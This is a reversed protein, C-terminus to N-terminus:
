KSSSTSALRLGTGSDMYAPKYSERYACRCYTAIGGWSGGRSVRYSGSAPGTPDTSPSSSYYSSSYWDQCWEYVNGSMDYIGLENPAYSKANRHGSPYNTCCGVEGISNSGSYTYGQSKNGGRAAFEWEAETPLRFTLGTLSNLKTIFSQCDNWSVCEVPYNGSWQNSSPNSGMVAQWLEQTVETEGIYYDKTLTVSHVPQEDFYETSGMRFTGKEVRIMNFSVGSVTCTLKASVKWGKPIYNQSPMSLWLSNGSRQEDLTVTREYGTYAGDESVYILGDENFRGYVYSTFYRGAEATSSVTLSTMMDEYTFSDDSLTYSSARKMGSFTVQQAPVGALRLRTYAPKMHLGVMFAGNEYSFQATSDTYVISNENLTAGTYTSSAANKIYHAVMTGSAPIAASADFSFSWEAFTNSYVAVVPIKTEGSLLTMYIKSGDGWTTVVSGGARTADATPADYDTVVSTMEGRTTVWGAPLGEPLTGETSADPADMAQEDSSCASIGMLAVVFLLARFLKQITNDTMM